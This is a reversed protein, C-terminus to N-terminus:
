KVRKRKAPEDRTFLADMMRARDAIDIGAPLGGPATVWKIAPKAAAPKPPYRLQHRLGGEILVKITMRHQAAYKKAEIFLDDPLEVTTKM